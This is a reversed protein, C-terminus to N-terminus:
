AERWREGLRKIMWKARLSGSGDDVVVDLQLDYLQLQEVLAQCREQSLDRNCGLLRLLRLQPLGVMLAVLTRKPLDDMYELTLQRLQRSCGALVKLRRCNVPPGFGSSWARLRLHQLQPLAAVVQLAKPQKDFWYLDLTRLQPCRPLQQYLTAADWGRGESDIFEVLQLTHVSSLDIVALGGSNTQLQGPAQIPAGGQLELERFRDVRCEELRALRAAAAAAPSDFDAVLRRLQGLGALVLAQQEDLMCGLLTLSTLQQLAALPQLHVGHSLEWLELSV